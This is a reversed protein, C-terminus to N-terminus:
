ELRRAAARAIVAGALLVAVLTLGPMEWDWDVGAHVAWVLCAAAPDAALVRDSGIAGRAAAVVGGFLAVLCALGVLGLEAATEIYLSHADQVREDITRERLWAVGFGGAGIGQLPHRGAERLAVAWYRSRNSGAQALRAASAGASAASSPASREALAAGYPM